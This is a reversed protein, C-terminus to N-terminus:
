HGLEKLVESLYQRWGKMQQYMTWFSGQARAIFHMKTAEDLQVDLVNVALFRSEFSSDLYRTAVQHVIRKIQEIQKLLRGYDLANSGEYAERECQALQHLVTGIVERAMKRKQKESLVPYIELSVGEKPLPHGEIVHQETREKTGDLFHIAIEYPPQDTVSSGGEFFNLLHNVVGTCEGDEGARFGLRVREGPKLSPVGDIWIKFGHRSEVPDFRVSRVFRPGCNRLFLDLPIYSHIEESVELSFWGEDLPLAQNDASSAHAPAAQKGLAFCNMVSAGAVTLLCFSAIGILAVIPGPLGRVFAWLSLALSALAALLAPIHKWLDLWQLLGRVALAQRVADWIQKFRKRVTVAEKRSKRVGNRGV